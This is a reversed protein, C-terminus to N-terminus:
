MTDKLFRGKWILKVDGASCDLRESVRERLVRVDDGSELEYEQKGQGAMM